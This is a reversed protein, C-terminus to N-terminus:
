LVCVVRRTVAATCLELLDVYEPFVVVGAQPAVRVIPMDGQREQLSLPYRKPHRCITRPASSLRHASPIYLSAATVADHNKAEHYTERRRVEVISGM